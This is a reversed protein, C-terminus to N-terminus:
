VFALAKCHTSDITGVSRNMTEQEPSPFLRVSAQRLSAVSFGNRRGMLRAEVQDIEATLLHRNVDTLSAIEGPAEVVVKGLRNARVLVAGELLNEALAPVAEIPGQATM